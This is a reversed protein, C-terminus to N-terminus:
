VGSIPIRLIPNIDFNKKKKNRHNQKSESGDRVISKGWKNQLIDFQQKEKERNRIAACGGKQKCQITDYYYNQVRLVVRNKNLQQLTMDYDEKLPLREDFLCNNGKLFNMFPAGIYAKTKFPCYEKYIQRDKNLNIGWLYAGLDKCLISYKEIMGKLYIGEVLNAINKRWYYIGKLDDDIMTVVDVGKSFENKLIYNRVRAINGQVGSPCAIIEVEPNTKKYKDFEEGAVYVNIDKIYNKTKVFPRKYSAVNISIKM